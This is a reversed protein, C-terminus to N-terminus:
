YPEILRLTISKPTLKLVKFKQHRYQFNNTDRPLFITTNHTNESVSFTNDRTLGNYSVGKFTKKGVELTRTLRDPEEEPTEPKSCGALTILGSLALARGTNKLSKYLTM